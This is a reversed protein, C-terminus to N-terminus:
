GGVGLKKFVFSVNMYSALMVVVGFTTWVIVTKAKGAREANGAATMWMIGAYVYLVVTISGIFAMLMTIARGIFDTAQGFGGPNLKKSASEQLKSLTGTSIKDASKNPESKQRRLLGNYTNQFTKVREDCPNDYTACKLLLADPYLEKVESVTCRSVQMPDPSCFSVYKKTNSLDSLNDQNNYIDSACFCYKQDLNQRALLENYNDKFIQKRQDCSKDSNDYTACKPYLVESYIKKFETVTCLNESLAENCFSTYKNTNSLDPLNKQNSYIDSACFCQKDAALATRSFVLFSVIVLLTVIYCHLLKAM